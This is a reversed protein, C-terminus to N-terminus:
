KAWRKEISERVEDYVSNIGQELLAALQRHQREIVPQLYAKGNAKARDICVELPTDLVVPIANPEIELMRKISEKTSHTGAVIVDYSSLLMTRVMIHKHAFVVTELERVYEQGTLALRIKDTDVIVRPFKSPEQQWRKSYTSKGSHSAGMLIFLRPKQVEDYFRYSAPFNSYNIPDNSKPLGPCHFLSSPFNTM